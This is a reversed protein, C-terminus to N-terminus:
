FLSQQEQEPATPAPASQIERMRAMLPVGCGEITLGFGYVGPGLQKLRTWTPMFGRARALDMLERRSMGKKCDRVFQAGAEPMMHPPFTDPLGFCELQEM